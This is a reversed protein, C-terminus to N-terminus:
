KKILKKLSVVDVTEYLKDFGKEVWAVMGMAMIYGDAKTNFTQVKVVNSISETIGMHQNYATLFDVLGKPLEKGFYAVESDLNRLQTVKKVALLDTMGASKAAALDIVDQAKSLKSEAARVKAAEQRAIIAAKMALVASQQVPVVVEPRVQVQGVPKAAVPVVVAQAQSSM